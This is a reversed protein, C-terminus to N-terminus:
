QTLNVLYSEQIVQTKVVDIHRHLLNILDIIVQDKVKHQGLVKGLPDMLAIPQCQVKSSVKSLDLQM